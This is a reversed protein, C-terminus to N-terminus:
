DWIFELFESMIFESHRRDGSITVSLLGYTQLNLYVLVLSNTCTTTLYVLPIQM